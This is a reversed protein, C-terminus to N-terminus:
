CPTTRSSQQALTLAGQITIIFNNLNQFQVGENSSNVETLAM